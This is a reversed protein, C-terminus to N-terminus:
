LTYVRGLGLAEDVEPCVLQGGCDGAVSFRRFLGPIWALMQTLVDDFRNTLEHDAASVFVVAKPGRASEYALASAEPEITVDEAGHMLLVPLKVLAFADLCSITDCGAYNHKADDTRLGMGICVVGALPGVGAASPTSRKISLVAAAMVAACAESSFGVLVLPLNVGHAVRLSRAATAVDDACERVRLPSTRTRGSRFAVPVKWTFHCVAYNEEALRRALVSYISPVGPSFFDTSGAPVGPGMGGTGGPALIVLGRAHGHAPVYNLCRLGNELTRLRPLAQPPHSHREPSSSREHLLPSSLQRSPM